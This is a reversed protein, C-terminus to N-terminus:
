KYFAFRGIIPLEKRNRDIVNKIGIIMMALSFCGVLFYLLGSIFLGTKSIEYIGTGLGFIMKESKFISFVLVQNIISIVLSFIFMSITLIMGQGVHFKVEEDDRDGCLLGVLWLIGFYSLIQYIKTREYNSAEKNNKSNDKESENVSTVKAGCKDCFKSTADLKKGCESCFM